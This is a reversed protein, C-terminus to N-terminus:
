PHNQSVGNCNVNEVSPIAKGSSIRVIQEQSRADFLISQRPCWATIGKRWECVLGSTHDDWINVSILAEQSETKQHFGIKGSTWYLVFNLM